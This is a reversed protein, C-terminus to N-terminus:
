GVSVHKGRSTRLEACCSRSRSRAGLDETVFDAHKIEDPAAIFTVSSHPSTAPLTAQFCIGRESLLRQLAMNEERAAKGCASVFFAPPRQELWDAFKSHYPRPGIDAGM